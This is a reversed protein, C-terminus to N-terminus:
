HNQTRRRNVPEGDSGTSPLLTRNNSGYQDTQQALNLYLVPEKDSGISTVLTRNYSGYQGTWQALNSGQNCQGMFEFIGLLIMPTGRMIILKMKLIKLVGRIFRGISDYPDGM